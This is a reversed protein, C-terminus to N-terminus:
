SICLKETINMAPSYSNAFSQKGTLTYCCDIVITSMYQLLLSANSIEVDM